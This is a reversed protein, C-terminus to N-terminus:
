LLSVVIRITMFVCADEEFQKTSGKEYANEKIFCKEMQELETLKWLTYTTPDQLCPAAEILFNIHEIKSSKSM